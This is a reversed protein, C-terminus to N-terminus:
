FIFANVIRKHTEEKYLFFFDRGMEKVQKDVLFNTLLHNVKSKKKEKHMRPIWRRISTSVNEGIKFTNEGLKSLKIKELNNSEKLTCIAKLKM